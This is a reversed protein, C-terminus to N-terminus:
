GPRCDWQRRRSGLVPGPTRCVPRGGAFRVADGLPRPQWGQGASDFQGARWTGSTGPTEQIKPTNPRAPRATAFRLAACAAQRRLRSSCGHRLVRRYGPPFLVLVFSQHMGVPVKVDGVVVIFHATAELMETGRVLVLVVVCRHPM